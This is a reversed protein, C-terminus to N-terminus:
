YTYFDPLKGKKKKKSPKSKPKPKIQWEPWGLLMAIRQWTETDEEM